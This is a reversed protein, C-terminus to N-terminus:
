LQKSGIFKLGVVAFIIGSIFVIKLASVSEAGTAMSYIVTLAAGIGVWVAHGTGIPIQKVAYGLGLMSIILAIFFIFTPLPKTFGDSLGLSVAWVAEFVASIILIMLSM